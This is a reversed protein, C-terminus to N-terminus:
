RAAKRARVDAVGIAIAKTYTTPEEGTNAGGGSRTATGTGVGIRKEQTINSKAEQAGM